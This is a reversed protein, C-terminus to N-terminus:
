QVLIDRNKARFKTRLSEVYEAVDFEFSLGKKNEGTKLKEITQAFVCATGGQRNFTQQGSETVYGMIPEDFLCLERNNYNALIEAEVNPYDKLHEHLYWISTALVDTHQAIEEPVVTRCVLTQGEFPPPKSERIYQMFVKRDELAEFRIRVEKIYAGRAPVITIPIESHEECIAQVHEHAATARTRTPWNFFKAEYYDVAHITARRGTPPPASSARPGSEVKSLREKLGRIENNTNEEVSDLRKSLTGIDETISQTSTKIVDLIHNINCANEYHLDYTSPMDGKGSGKLSPTSHGSGPGHMPVSQGSM